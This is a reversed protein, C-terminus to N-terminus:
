GASACAISAPCVITRWAFHLRWSGDVPSVGEQRDAPGGGVAALGLQVPQAAADIWRGPEGGRGCPVRSALRVGACVCPEPGGFVRRWPREVAAMSRGRFAAEGCLLQAGPRPAEM